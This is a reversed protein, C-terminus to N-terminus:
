KLNILNDLKKNQVDLTYLMWKGAMMDPYDIAKNFMLDQAGNKMESNLLQWLKLNRLMQAEAQLEQLQANSLPTKGLFLQGNRFTLFDDETVANFLYKLLKNLIWRKM